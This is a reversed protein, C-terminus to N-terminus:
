FQARPPADLVARCWLELIMVSWLRPFVTGPLGQERVQYLPAVLAPDILGRRRITEPHCTEDILTRAEGKLWREVPLAFGRKPRQGIGEPLIDKLAEFLVRKAGSTHYHLGTGGDPRLKFADACTRSFDAIELDVFPVRLELSHAMSTADSDRLLQSRMYVSADLLCALGVPSESAWDERVGGLLKEFRCDQKCDENSLGSLRRANEYFFVSRSNVWTTLSRRRAALNQVRMQFRSEPILGGIAHAFRGAVAQTRGLSSFRYRAMRRTAPYGAFWEDAGLGSLIGKVERAAVRSLLWTNMGDVSPQDLEAAFQPMLAAAESGTVDVITNHCGYDAAAAVAESAEDVGPVDPFRLTYTRLSPHHHRMLSVISTSDVGGSLFAGVPADALAHLRVSEDLAARLREAAEGMTEQRPAYPPMQWFRITQAAEGPRHRELTGPELMRVGRLITKPQLVCGYAFYDTLSEADLEREILGSALLARIESAFVIGGRGNNHNVGGVSGVYLPKIGFPDRALVLVPEKDMGAERWDFLALAFMGRLKEVFDLGRELYLALVVETDTTSHFQYGTQELRKREARFNYIEGNFILAVKKDPSRFPQMGNASLDVLSLRVMGAAGGAFSMQASGDPGRHAMARLMAAIRRQTAAEDGSRVGWIGAIGCM